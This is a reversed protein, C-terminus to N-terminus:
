FLEFFKEKTETAIPWFALVHAAHLLPNHDFSIHVITPHTVLCPKKAAAINSKKSPLTVTLKLSSLYGTKKQRVKQVLPKKDDTM